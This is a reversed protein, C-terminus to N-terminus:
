WNGHGALFALLVGITSIFPCSVTLKFSYSSVFMETLTLVYAIKYALVIKVTIYVKM